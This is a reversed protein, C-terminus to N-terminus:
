AGAVDEENHQEQCALMDVPGSVKRFPNPQRRQDNMLDPYEEFLNDEYHKETTGPKNLNFNPLSSIQPFNTPQLQFNPFGPSAFPLTWPEDATDARRRQPQAPEPPLM